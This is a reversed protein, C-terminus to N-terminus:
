LVHCSKTTDVTLLLTDRVEAETRLNTLINPGSLFVVAFEAFDNDPINVIIM